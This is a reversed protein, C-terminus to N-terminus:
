QADQIDHDTVVKFKQGTIVKFKQGYLFHLFHKISEVVMLAELETASYRQEAGRLQRSYFATPLVEGHRCANLICGVGLGSADTHLLFEDNALPVTPCCFKSLACHLSDFAADGWDM